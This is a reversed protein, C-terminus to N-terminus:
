DNQWVPGIILETEKLQPKQLIKLLTSSDNETDFVSLSIPLRGREFSDLAILAGQYYERCINGLQADYCNPNDIIKKSCFPLILSINNSKKQLFSFMFSFMMAILFTLRLSAFVCFIKKKSNM